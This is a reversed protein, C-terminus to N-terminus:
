KPAGGVRAPAAGGAPTGGGGATSAAGATAPATPVGEPTEAAGAPAPGFAPPTEEGGAAPMGGGGGGGGGGGIEATAANMAAVQQKWNPGNSLIQELEYQLAADKRRWERNIAMEEDTLELYNKQAFSNSIGENNSLNNFNNYKLDFMQQQKMMMFMTPLNFVIKLHREKLKYNEWIRRLKLHTIFSDKLGEAIQKQIRILFKAFRLEERTMETGDNYTSELNLRGTPVKMSKYLQKLFYMLDDLQGLNHGGELREVRTGETGARKPFWYSDLMSQPDYVNTIRGTTTDYTKKAWYQQMLRKIYAEAKPPSM